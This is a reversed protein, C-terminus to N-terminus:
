PALLPATQAAAEVDLRRNASEARVLGYLATVGAFIWYWWAITSDEAPGSSAAGLPLLFVIGAVVDVPKRFYLAIGFGSFLFGLLAALWPTTRSSPAPLRMLATWFGDYARRLRSERPAPEDGAAAGPPVAQTRGRTNIWAAAIVAFASIAAAVITEVCGYRGVM